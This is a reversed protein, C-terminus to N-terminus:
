RQKGAKAYGVHSEAVTSLFPRVTQLVKSRAFRFEIYNNAVFGEIIFFANCGLTPGSTELM